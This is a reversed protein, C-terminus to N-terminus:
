DVDYRIGCIKRIADLTEMQMLTDQHTMVPSEILGKRLCEGVHRAEFQYGFGDERFVEIAKPEEKGLALEITAVANHFRNKLLIRGKTGAIVAEVPTDSSLTSSLAALAGNPFKM